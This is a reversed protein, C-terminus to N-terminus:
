RAWPMWGLRHLVVVAADGERLVTDSLLADIAYKRGHRGVGVLLAASPAPSPNPPQNSSSAPCHRASSGPHAVEGVLTATSSINRM